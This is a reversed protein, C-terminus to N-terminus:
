KSLNENKTVTKFVKSDRDDVIVKLYRILRLGHEKLVKEFRRRSEGSHRLLDIQKTNLGKLYDRHSDELIVKCKDDKCNDKEM